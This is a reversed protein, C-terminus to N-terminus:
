QGFRPLQDFPTNGDDRPGTKAVFPWFNFFPRDVGDREADAEQETLIWVERLQGMGDRTYNVVHTQGVLSASMAMMNQATRIRTGPSLRVAEGDLEAQSTNVFTIEGRLTGPPFSRGGGAAENQSPLTQSAALDQAQAPAQFLLSLPAALAVAAILFHTKFAIRTCRNM